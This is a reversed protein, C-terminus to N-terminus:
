YELGFYSGIPVSLMSRFRYYLNWARYGVTQTPRFQHIWRRRAYPIRKREFDTLSPEVGDLIALTGELLREQTASANGDHKRYALVCFTHRVLSSRRGIRLYLDYDEGISSFSENFLGAEVFTKKRIMTAGPTWIPNGELLMRFYDKRPRCVHPPSVQEGMEDILRVSGFGLGADPHAKLVKLQAEVAGSELVDDADLFILYEGSSREFGLNRAASVGRNETRLLQIGRLDKLVGEAPVESGDDVVIIEIRPYTQRKASCVTEEVFVRQNYYPIIISVLPSSTTPTKTM